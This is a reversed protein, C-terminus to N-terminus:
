IKVVGGKGWNGSGAHSEYYRHGSQVIYHLGKRTGSDQLFVGPKSAAAPARAPQPRAAPAAPKATSAPRVYVAKEYGAKKPDTDYLHYVSMQGGHAASPKLATVMKAATSAAAARVAGVSALQAPAAAVAPTDVPLPAAAFGPDTFPAPQNLLADLQGSLGSLTTNLEGMSAGNDAFTSSGGPAGTALGTQDTPSVPATTTGGGGGGGGGGRRMIVFLAILGGAAIAIAMRKQQPNLRKLFGGKGPAPPSPAPAAM